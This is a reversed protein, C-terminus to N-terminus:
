EQSQLTPFKSAIARQVELLIAQNDQFVDVPCNVISDLLIDVLSNIQAASLKLTIEHVM